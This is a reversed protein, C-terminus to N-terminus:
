FILESKNEKGDHLAKLNLNTLTITIKLVIQICSIGQFEKSPFFYFFAIEM